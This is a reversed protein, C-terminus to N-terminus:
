SMGASRQGNSLMGCPHFRQALRDSTTATLFRRRRQSRTLSFTSPIRFQDDAIQLEM